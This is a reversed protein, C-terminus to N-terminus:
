LCDLGPDGLLMKLGEYNKERFLTKLPPTFFIWGTFLHSRWRYKEWVQKFRSIPKYILDEMARQLVTTAKATLPSVVEYKHYMQLRVHESEINPCWVPLTSASRLLM